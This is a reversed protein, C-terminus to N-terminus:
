VTGTKKDNLEQIMCTVQEYQNDIGSLIRRGENFVFVPPETDDSKLAM